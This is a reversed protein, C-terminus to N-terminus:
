IWGVTTTNVLHESNHFWQEIHTAQQSHVKGLFFVKGPWQSYRTDICLRSHVQEIIPHYQPM